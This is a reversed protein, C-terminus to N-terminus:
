RRNKLHESTYYKQLHFDGKYKENKLMGLITSKDRKGGTITKIGTGNLEKAILFTGTGDAYRQFIMKVTDAEKQNIILDGYEDKDYGMFRSTSIM